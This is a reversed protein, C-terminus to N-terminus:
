APPGPPPTRRRFSLSSSTWSRDVGNRKLRQRHRYTGVCLLFLTPYGWINLVFAYAWPIVEPSALKAAHGMVGIALFAAQWIPWFREARLALVVFALVLVVDVVLVGVEVSRFRLGPASVMLHSMVAASAQLAAGIREPSGGCLLAYGCSLVLLLFFVYNIAM